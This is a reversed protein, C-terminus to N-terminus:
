VYGHVNPPALDKIRLQSRTEPPKKASVAAPTASSLGARVQERRFRCRYRALANRFRCWAEANQIWDFRPLGIQAQSRLRM